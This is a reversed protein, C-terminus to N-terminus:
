IPMIPELCFYAERWLSYPSITNLPAKMGLNNPYSLMPFIFLDPIVIWRSRRKCVGSQLKTADALWGLGPFPNCLHQVLGSNAVLLTRNTLLAYLFTSVASLAQNGVGNQLGAVVFRCSNEEDPKGEIDYHLGTAAEEHSSNSLVEMCRKHMTEYAALRERLYLSAEPGDARYYLHSEAESWCTDPLRESHSIPKSRLQKCTSEVDPNASILEGASFGWLLSISPQKVFGSSVGLFTVISFLLCGVAVAYIYSNLHYVAM